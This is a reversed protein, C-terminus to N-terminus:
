LVKSVASFFADPRVHHPMHGIGDLLTLGAHPMARAFPIAHVDAPVITDVTGHVVEIPMSLSQYRPVMAEIQPKLRAVQIANRRYRNPDASLNSRVFDIYGDPMDQPEFITDVATQIRAQTALLPVVRSFAYGVIPTNALDYLKGASGEWVMSPASLLVLGSVTEPADVAWALAVAGGFSHGVVTAREIGLKGAAERMLAAQTSLGPDDAPDSFGLGPRDFALVTHSKTLEDFRGFTWDLFNGSAGHLLIVPPGDGAMIYHLKKGSVTIFDGAPPRNM